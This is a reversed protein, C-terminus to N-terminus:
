IPSKLTNRGKLEVSGERGNDMAGRGEAGGGGGRVEEPKLRGEAVMVAIHQVAQTIDQRGSYSVAVTLDLATNGASRV